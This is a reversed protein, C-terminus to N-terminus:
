DAVDIKINAGYDYAYFALQNETWFTDQTSHRVHELWGLM